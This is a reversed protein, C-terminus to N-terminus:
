DEYQALKAAQAEAIETFTEADVAVATMMLLNSGFDATVSYGEIVQTDGDEPDEMEIQRSIGSMPWEASDLTFPEIEIQDGEAELPSAECYEAIDEWIGSSEVETGEPYSLMWVYVEASAEVGSAGSATPLRYEHMVGTQPDQGVLELNVQDMAQSCESEGFTEQYESREVAIYEEFYGLGSYTSHGEASEPLEGPALLLNMMQDEDLPGITEDEEAADGDGDEDDAEAGEAGEYTQPAAEETAEEAPADPADPEPEACGTLLGLTVVACCTVPTLAAPRRPSSSLM